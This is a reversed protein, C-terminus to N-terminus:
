RELALRSFRIEGSAGPRTSNTDLVLLLGGTSARPGAEVTNPPVPTMDDFAITAERPSRDLYVSRRWRPPNADGRERLQVSLRLPGSARARLALREYNAFGPPVPLVMAVFQNRPVGPGLVYQLVLGERPTDGHTLTVTSLRDHETHWPTSPDPPDILDVSETAVTPAPPSPRAPIGVFIPNSVIWPVPPRGPAHTVRAELRYAARRGDAQYMLTPETTEIVPRGDQILVLSAGPPGVVRAEFAVPNGATLTDGQRAVLRGRRGVFEFSAPEALADVVTYHRGARLAEVLAVADSTAEGGLPDDLEVRTTVSRFSAEYSYPVLGHADTAALTLVRSDRAMADFRDLTATPRSMALALTEPRRFWYTLLARAIQLRPAQRWVTELNLWELADVPTDWNRWRLEPDPSDGHSVVGFGGLRAVDQAVERPDGALPYPSPTMGVAAYHGGETSIEVGDIVLVGSRYEPLAPPRTGDGHDTLVLFQLGARAAEMAVDELSAAGDSRITHVHFAGAIVRESRASVLGRNVARPPLLALGALVVGAAAATLALRGRHVGPM